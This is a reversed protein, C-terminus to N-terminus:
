VYIHNTGTGPIAAGSKVILDFKFLKLLFLGAQSLHSGGHTKLDLFIRHTIVPDRKVVSCTDQKLKKEEVAASCNTEKKTKPLFM